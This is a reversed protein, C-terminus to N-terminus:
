HFVQGAIDIINGLDEVGGIDVFELDNWGTLRM